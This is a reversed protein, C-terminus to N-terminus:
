GSLDRRGLAEKHAEEVWGVLPALDVRRRVAGWGHRAIPTRAPAHSCLLEEGQRRGLGVEHGKETEWVCVCM